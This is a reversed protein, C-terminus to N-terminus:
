EEDIFNKSYYKVGQQIRINYELTTYHYINKLTLFNIKWVKNLIKTHIFGLNILEYSLVMTPMGQKKINQNEM